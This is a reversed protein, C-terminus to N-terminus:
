KNLNNNYTIKTTDNTKLIPCIIPNGEGESSVPPAGLNRLHLFDEKLIDTKDFNNNYTIKTTNKLYVLNIIPDGEGESNVPPACM